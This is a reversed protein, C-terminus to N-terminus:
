PFGLLELDLQLVVNSTAPNQRQLQFSNVRGLRSGSEVRQLYAMASAFSGSLRLSYPVRKYTTPATEEPPATPRQQLETLKTQTDQEIKYFYWFNEPINKEVVLNETIRQAAARASALETRLQSARAIEKLMRDGDIARTRQMGDLDHNSVRLWLSAGILLLSLVICGACFPYRQAFRSLQVFFRVIM